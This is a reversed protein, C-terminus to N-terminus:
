YDLENCGCWTLAIDLKDEFAEKFKRCNICDNTVDRKHVGLTAIVEIINGTENDYEVEFDLNNDNNPQFKMFLYGM